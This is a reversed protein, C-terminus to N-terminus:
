SAPRLGLADPLEARSRIALKQYARALHNEVTKITVFLTQAIERNGLGSAALEAVRRESATLAEAGSLQRRRPRAGAALLEAHAADALAVAQCSQAVDVAERLPARADAARGRARLAVGLDFNARALELRSPSRALREVAEELAALAADEGAGVRGVARLATGIATDTGWGRALELQAAALRRAEGDEGRMAHAEAALARWGLEPDRLGWRRERAAVDALDALAADPRETRLALTARAVLLRSGVLVDPVPGLADGARLEAEAEALEGREVLSHVIVALRTPWFSAHAGMAEQAARADSEAALLDGVRLYTFSSTNAVAGVGFLSGRTRTEAFAAEIAARAEQARDCLTLVFIAHNLALSEATEERVLMGGSVARLALEAAEEASSGHLSLYRALTALVSCEGPTSGALERYTGFRPPVGHPHHVGVSGLEGELRLTMERDAEGVDAIAEELVAIGAPPGESAALARALALRRWARERRDQALPVSARLAAAAGQVDGALVRARGLEALVDGRAGPEPPEDLARDLFRVATAGAGDRVAAQAAARLTTVVDEDGAPAAVLLHPAVERPQVGDAMLARAAAAHLARREADALDAYITGRVVPHAFALTRSPELIDAERLDDAARAAREPDLGAVTAVLRLGTGAALVSLARAVRAADEPMRAIRALITRAIARSGLEVVQEPSAAAPDLGDARVADALQRLVFPNGAAAAHCAAAFRRDVTAGVEARLLERAAPESLPGPTVLQAAPDGLLERLVQPEAGPEGSRAAVLIIVPLGEVRRALYHLFRLSPPDAWQVDDVAVLVPAEVALNAVLWYLGHLLAFEGPEGAAAAPLLGLEAGAAAAPGRLAAERREPTAQALPREFLQRVVGGSFEQELEGGRAALVLMGRDEAAGRAARMLHTKGIGVPGEVAVLAGDGEAARDLAAGIVRLEADRELLLAPAM